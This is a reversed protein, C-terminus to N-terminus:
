QSCRREEGFPSKRMVLRDISMRLLELLRDDKLRSELSMRIGFRNVVGQKSLLEVRRASRSEASLLWFDKGTPHCILIAAFAPQLPPVAAKRIQSPQSQLIVSPAHHTSSPMECMIEALHSSKEDAISLLTLDM